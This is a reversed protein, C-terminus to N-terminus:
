QQIIEQTRKRIEEVPMPGRKHFHITGDAKVFLTEPMSFGGIARYFSDSPDLLFVMDQTIGLGDTFDKTADRTEARDVAIIVVQDGFEKQVTAFDALEKVCFPCWVAWANIVLPGDFDGLRITNGAYDQLAIDLAQGAFSASRLPANDNNEQTGTNKQVGFWVGAVVVITVVLISLTTKTQM